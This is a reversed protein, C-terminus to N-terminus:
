MHQGGYLMSNRGNLFQTKIPIKTYITILWNPQM